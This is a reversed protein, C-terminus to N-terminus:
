TEASDAATMRNKRRARGLAALTFIIPYLKEFYWLKAFYFGIPTPKALGDREVQEVLWASGSNVADLAQSGADVLIDIALATEEISSPSGKGGGWGGDPNQNALLWAIGKRAPETDMMALDRYAALVRASGYTPNEDDPMHQNGFWLPLWSGDPRQTRALYAFGSDSVSRMGEITLEQSLVYIEGVRPLFEPTVNLARM